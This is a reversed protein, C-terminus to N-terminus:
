KATTVGLFIRVLNIDQLECRQLGLTSAAEMLFIDGQRALLPLRNAKISITVKNHACFQRLSTFWCDTLYPVHTDPKSLLDYSVGAETQLARLSILMVTGIKHETEVYNLLAQLQALGQELRLNSLGSGFLPQPAFTVDHPYHKNFGLLNLTSATMRSQISHLEDPTM